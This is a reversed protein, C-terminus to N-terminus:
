LGLRNLFHNQLIPNAFLLDSSNKYKNMDSAQLGIDDIEGKEFMQLLLTSRNYYPYYGNSNVMIIETLIAM